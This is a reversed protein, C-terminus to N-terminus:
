APRAIPVVTPRDKLEVWRKAAENPTMARVTEWSEGREMLQARMRWYARRPDIM